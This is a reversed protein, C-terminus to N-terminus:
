ICRFKLLDWVVKTYSLPYYLKCPSLIKMHHSKLENTLFIRSDLHMHVGTGSHIARGRYMGASSSFKNGYIYCRFGRPMEIIRNISEHTGYPFECCLKRSLPLKNSPVYEGCGICSSLFLSDYTSIWHWFTTFKCVHLNSYLSNKRIHRSIYRKKKCLILVDSLINVPAYISLGYV